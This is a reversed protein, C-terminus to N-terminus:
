RGRRNLEVLKEAVAVAIRELMEDDLAAYVRKDPDMRMAVGSVESVAVLPAPSPVYHRNAQIWHQGDVSVEEVVAREENLRHRYYRATAGDWYSTDM